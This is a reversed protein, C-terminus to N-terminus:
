KQYKQIVYVSDIPQEFMTNKRREILRHIYLNGIKTLQEMAEASAIIYWGEGTEQNCRERYQTNGSQWYVSEVMKNGENDLWTGVGESAPKWGIMIALDPNFEIWKSKVSEAGFYGYKMVICDSEFYDEDLYRDDMYSIKMSYEEIATEDQPKCLVTREGIVVWDDLRVIPEQLRQSTKAQGWWDKPLSYAEVEALRHIFSPKPNVEINIIQFNTLMFVDDSLKEASVWGGDVLEGAVEMTADIIPHAKRHRCPYRLSINAYHNMMENDQMDWGATTGKHLLLQYARTAINIPAIDTTYCLERIIHGAMSMIYLPNDGEKPQPIFMTYVASLAKIPIVPLPEGFDKLITKAFIRLQYNESTAYTQAIQRYRDTTGGLERMYMAVEFINRVECQEEQMLDVISEYGDKQMKALLMKAKESLCIIPRKMIYILWRVIMGMVGDANPVLNPMDTRNVMYPRLIWSMYRMEEDFLRSEDVKDTILRAIEDLYQMAGYGIGSPIDESIQRMAIKRGKEPDIKKLIGCANIRTGGDNYKAWGYVSSQSLADLATEWARTKDGGDLLLKAKAELRDSEHSWDNPNDVDKVAIPETSEIPNEIEDIKALLGNRLNDFCQTSICLRLENRYAEFADGLLNTGITYIEKCLSTDIDSRADQIYLHIQTYYRFVAKYEKETEVKELAKKIVISSISEFYGIESDLLWKGLKLGTGLNLDCADEMLKEGAYVITRPECSDYIDRLRSTFWHIREIAKSPDVNNIRGIWEAMTVPQYDKRYGVGSSSVIMQMFMNIARDKEGLVIWAKGQTLAETQKSTIDEGQLMSEEISELISKVMKKDMGADYLAIAMKRITKEEAKWRSSRYIENIISGVKKVTEQGYASAVKVLYEYFDGRQENITYAELENDRVLQDFSLIYPRVLQLFEIDTQNPLYAKGRLQALTYVKRLYSTEMQESLQKGDPVLETMNDEYGLMSRLEVYRIRLRLQEFRDRPLVHKTKTALQKWHVKDLYNKVVAEDEGIQQAFSAMMLNTSDDIQVNTAGNILSQLKKYEAHLTERTAGIDLLKRVKDRRALIAALEADGPLFTLLYTELDKWRLLEVLSKLVEYKFSFQVDGEDFQEDNHKALERLHDIFMSIHADVEHLTQFYVASQVWETLYETQDNVDHSFKRSEKLPSSIFDPYTYQFLQNAEEVHGYLYFERALTMAYQQTCRLESGDRIQRKAMDVMGLQLFPEILDLSNFEQNDMQSLQSQLLLMRIMMYPDDKKLAIQVAAKIDRQVHWLPRFHHIQEIIREPTLLQVFEDYREAKYLYFGIDWKNETVTEQTYQALQEYYSKNRVESYEGTLWDRSTERLLYQRFSNHFFTWTHSFPDHMFLYGLDGFVTRKVKEPTKWERIFHEDIDVVVRSLIGLLQCKEEDRLTDGVIRQYYLEPNEDYTQISSLKLKPNAALQNLTYRLYLPHGLSKTALMEVVDSTVKEAGLIKIALNQVEERSLPPMKITSARGEYEKMIFPNLGLGEYYQSGLVVVIGDPLEATTPLAELLPHECSTYERHIHDLGDVILLTPRLTEEYNKGIEHLLEIFRKKLLLDENYTKVSKRSGYAIEEIQRVIDHLFTRSEGREPSNDLQSSPRTFDFAYYRIFANPLSQSWTTLITSKGSGPSGELFIYGKSGKEALKANLLEIAQSNPEYTATNVNLHHNFLPKNRKDWGLELIIDRWTFRARRQPSAVKKQIWNVLAWLDDLEQYIMADPITLEEGKYDTTFVFAKWFESLEEETIVRKIKDEIKSRLEAIPDVWKADVTDGKKLVDLVEERFAPFRGIRNGKKDNIYNGEITGRKNTLLHPIVPKTPYLSRLKVWGDVVEPLLDEFDSYGFTDDNITWKIQYAQVDSTSVYCIDDLKGVKEPDDAVRVEELTGAQLHAYLQRAFETYQGLYGSMAAREGTAPVMHDMADIQAM